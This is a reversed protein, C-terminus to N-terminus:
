SAQLLRKAKEHIKDEAPLSSVLEKLIKRAKAKEGTKVYNEALYLKAKPVNYGLEIARKYYQIARDPKGWDDYFVGTLYNARKHSPEVQLAEKLLSECKAVGGPQRLALVAFALDVHYDPKKRDLETARSLHDVAEKTKGSEKLALGLGYQARAMSPAQQVAARLVVEAEPYKKAEILTLGLDARADVLAPNGDLAKRYEGIAELTRGEDKRIVAMRYHAGAHDPKMQIVSLYHKEARAVHGNALMINGVNYNAEPLMPDLKIALLFGDLARDGNGKKLELIGLNNHFEARAPDTELADSYYQEASQLDGGALALNGLLSYADGSKPNKQIIEKLVRVAEAVNGANLYTEVEKFMNDLPDKAESSLANWLFGGALLVSLLSGLLKYRGRM